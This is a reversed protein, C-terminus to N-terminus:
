LSSLLQRFPFTSKISMSSAWSGCVSITTLPLLRKWCWTPTGPSAARAFEVSLEFKKRLSVKRDHKEFLPVVIDCIWLGDRMYPTGVFLPQIRVSDVKSAPLQLPVLSVKAVRVTPKENSPLAVSYQRYVEGELANANMPAYAMDELVLRSRSDEIVTSAVGFTVFFLLLLLFKKLSSIVLFFYM